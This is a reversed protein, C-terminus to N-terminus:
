RTVERDPEDEHVAVALDVKLMTQYTEIVKGQRRLRVKARIFATDAPEPVEYLLAQIHHGELLPQFERQLQPELRRFSPPVLVSIKADPIETRAEVTLRVTIIRTEPDFSGLELSVGGSRLEEHKKRLMGAGMRAAYRVYKHPHEGTLRDLVQLTDRNGMAGATAAAQQLCLHPLESDLIRHLTSRAADREMLALRAIAPAKLNCGINADLLYAELDPLAMEFPSSAGAQAFADNRAVGPVMLGLQVLFLLFAKFVQGSM